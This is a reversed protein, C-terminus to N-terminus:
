NGSSSGAVKSSKILRLLLWQQHNERRWGGEHTLLFPFPVLSLSSSLPWQYHSYQYQYQVIYTCYLCTVTYQIIQIRCEFIRRCCFLDILLFSRCCLRILLLGKEYQRSLSLAFVREVFYLDIGLTTRFYSLLILTAVDFHPKIQLRVYSTLVSIWDQLQTLIRKGSRGSNAELNIWIYLLM